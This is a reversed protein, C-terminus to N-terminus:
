RISANNSQAKTHIIETAKVTKFDIGKRIAEVTPLVVVDPMVGHGDKIRNKDVVLRFKPLRFQLGTNPLTVEPIMWANNGYYGGGTEEGVLTINKQGKLAGAFLTTASFSNGGILLYVDGNFHHNEKPKFYHREFYGFHYKGDERKSTVFAMLMEYWFSKEIYKNYRSHRNAAYLSDALKFKKKILFKTLLTSNTADGGGNSRLDIMLNRINKEDLTRFSQRFFRKLRNGNSFTNVTMFATSGATDIQLNRAAFLRQLRREKKSLSHFRMKMGSNRKVTDTMPDYVPVIIEKENGGSDYYYIDLKDELGYISKYWSGFNFGNSLSQYKGTLSYGDTVMFNFLTDRLQSGTLGNISKIVTGRKLNSDKRNINATVVMTDAWFKLGLPFVKVRATDLYDSYKRSSRVSTHGCNIKTIVYSLLNRFQMETMSDKIGSYGNDFFYNMSDKSTYWYLGPHSEELIDRFLKYDSQLQRVTYKKSPNFAEKSTKCSFSFVLASWYILYTIKKMKRQGNKVFLM